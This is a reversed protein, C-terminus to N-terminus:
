CIAWFPKQMLRLLGTKKFADRESFGIRMLRSLEAQNEKLLQERKWAFRIVGTFWFLFLGVTLAAYYSGLPALCFGAILVSLMATYLLVDDFWDVEDAM